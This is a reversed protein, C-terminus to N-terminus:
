YQSRLPCRACDLASSRYSRREYGLSSKSIKKFPLDVGQSCTCKDKKKDYTFGAKVHFTYHGPSLGNFNIHGNDNLQFDKMLPSLKYYDHSSAPNLYNVIAFDVSFSNQRPHITLKKNAGSNLTFSFFNNEVFAETIVVIVVPYDNLSETLKQPHFIAVAGVLGGVIDGNRKKTIIGEYLSGPM